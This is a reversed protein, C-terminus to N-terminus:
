DEFTDDAVLDVARRRRRREAAVAVVLAATLGCLLGVVFSPSTSLRGVARVAGVLWALILALLAWSRPSSLRERASPTAIGHARVYVVTLVSALGPVWILAIAWWLGARGGAWLMATSLLWAGFTQVQWGVAASELWVVRSREDGWLRSDLAGIARLTPVPNHETM